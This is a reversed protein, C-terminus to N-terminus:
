NLSSIFEGYRNKTDQNFHWIDDGKLTATEYTGYFFVTYKNSKECTKAEVRAPWAPYGRVKAFVRDGASFTKKVMISTM